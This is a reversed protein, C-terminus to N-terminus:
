QLILSFLIVTGLIAVALYEMFVEFHLDRHIHHHILGWSVYSIGTALAVAIQFNSDYSFLILGAFGAFLIGILLMYHPLDRVFSKM